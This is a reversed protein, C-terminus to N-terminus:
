APRAPPVGHAYLGARAAALAELEGPERKIANVRIAAARANGLVSRAVDDLERGRVILESKGALTLATVELADALRAALREPEPTHVRLAVAGLASRAQVSDLWIGRELASTEGGLLTAEAQRNATCLVVAGSAAFRQLAETVYAETVLGLLGLPEHLAVLSPETHSLAVALAVGRAERTSLSSVRRAGFAALGATDLVSAASRADGRALLALAVSGAVNRGPLPTEEAFLAAIRRRVHPSTVRVSDLTVYGSSPQLMGAALLLLTHTGDRESGVVIHCGEGLTGSINALLGHNAAEFHLESM